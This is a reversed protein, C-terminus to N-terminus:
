LGPDSQKGNSNQKISQEELYARAIMRALIRLGNDSQKRQDETLNSITKEKIRSDKM